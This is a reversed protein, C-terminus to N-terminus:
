VNYSKINLEVIENNLLINFLVQKGPIFEHGISQSYDKIELLYNINYKKLAIVICKIIKEIDFRSDINRRTINEWRNSKNIDDINIYNSYLLIFDIHKIIEIEEIFKASTTIHINYDTLSNM